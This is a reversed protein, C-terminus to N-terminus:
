RFTSRVFPRLSSLTLPSTIRDGTVAISSGALIPFTSTTRNPIFVHCTGAAAFAIWGSIPLSVIIRGKCFPTSAALWSDSANPLSFTHPPKAL